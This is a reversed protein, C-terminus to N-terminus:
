AREFPVVFDKNEILGAKKCIESIEECYNRSAIVIFFDEAKNEFAFEPAFVPRGFFAYQQKAKNSDLFGYIFINHENCYKHIMSGDDGTGWVLLKKNKPVKIKKPFFQKIQKLKLHKSNNYYFDKGFFRKIKLILESTANYFNYWSKVLPTNWVRDYFAISKISDFLVPYKFLESMIFNLEKTSQTTNKSSIGTSDYIALTIPIYCYTIGYEFINKIFFAQDSLLQLDKRYFGFQSFLSKKIFCNQPNIFTWNSGKLFNLISLTSNRKRINRKTLSNELTYDGYVIDEFFDYRFSKELIFNSILYDGSNLLLCYEGKAAKIGKNQADYIGEDPESVSYTIHQSYENIVKVSEDTSAGDIVIYEYDKFTQCIVSEITKRLGKSDNKNITIISLKMDLDTAEL